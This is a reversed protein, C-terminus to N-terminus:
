GYYSREYPTLQPEYNKITQYIYYMMAKNRQINTNQFNKKPTKPNVQRGILM